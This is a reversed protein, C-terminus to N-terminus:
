TISLTSMGMDQVEPERLSSPGEPFPGEEDEHLSSPSASLRGPARKAAKAALGPLALLILALVVAHFLFANEDSRPFPRHASQRRTPRATASGPDSRLASHWVRRKAALRAPAFGIVIKV